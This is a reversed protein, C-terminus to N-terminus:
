PTEASAVVEVTYNQKLNELKEYYVSLEEMREQIGQLIEAFKEDKKQNKYYREINALFEIHKQYHEKLEQREKPTHELDKLIDELRRKKSPLWDSIKKGLKKKEQIETEYSQLKEQASAELSLLEELQKQLEDIENKRMAIENQLETVKERTEESHTRRKELIEEIQQSVLKPENNELYEETWFTDLAKGRREVSIEYECEINGKFRIITETHNIVIVNKALDNGKGYEGIEALFPVGSEKIQFILEVCDGEKIKLPRFFILNKDRNEGLVLNSFKKHVRASQSFNERYDKIDDLKLSMKYTDMKETIQQFAFIRLYEKEKLRM